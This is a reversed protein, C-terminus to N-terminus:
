PEIRYVYVKTRYLDPCTIVQEPQRGPLAFCVSVLYAGQLRGTSLMDSLKKMAGPYLYCVIIVDREYAFAYLDSRIFSVRPHRVFLRSIWLPILSNELGIVRRSPSRRAIELALTGWGSGAEVIRHDGPIQRILDAVCSRVSASSPMPSIGNRWSRYMLSVVALLAACMVLLTLGLELRELM